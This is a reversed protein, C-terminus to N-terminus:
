RDEKPSLPRFGGEETRVTFKRYDSYSATLVQNYRKLFYLRARLRVTIGELLWIEDNQRQQSAIAESGQSIRGFIGGAMRFDERFTVHLKAIQAAAPDIWITGELKSLVSTARSRPKYGPRPAFGFVRVTRGDLEADPLPTFEYVELSERLRTKFRDTRRKLRAAAEEQEKPSLRMQKQLHQRLKKEEERTEEASLPRGDKALLRKYEGGLTPTVENTQSETRKVEGDGDLYDTTLTEVYLYQRQLDENREQNEIVKLLLTRADDPPSAASGALAVVILRLALMALGIM